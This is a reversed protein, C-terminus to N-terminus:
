KNDKKIIEARIEQRQVILKMLAFGKQLATHTEYM